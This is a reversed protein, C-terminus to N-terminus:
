PVRFQHQRKLAAASRNDQLGNTYLNKVPQEPQSPLGSLTYVFKYYFPSAIQWDKKIVAKAQEFHRRM